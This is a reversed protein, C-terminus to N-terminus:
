LHLLLTSRCLHARCLRLRYVHQQERTAREESKALRLSVCSEDQSALSYPARHRVSDQVSNASAVNELFVNALLKHSIHLSEEDAPQEIGKRKMPPTDYYCCEVSPETFAVEKM